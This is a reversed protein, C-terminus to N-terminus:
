EDHNVLEDYLQSRNYYVTHVFNASAMYLQTWERIFSRGFGSLLVIAKENNDRTNMETKLGDPMSEIVQNWMPTRFTNLKDCEFLIHISNENETGCLGCCSSGHNRQLGSPQTGMLVAIVSSVKKFM